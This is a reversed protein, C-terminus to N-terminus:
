PGQHYKFINAKVEESMKQYDFNPLKEERKLWKRVYPAGDYQRSQKIPDFVRYTKDNGVGAQYCWNGYNSAPNYDILYHEFFAAGYRFDLGMNKVFYSALLQRVRNSIWGTQTLEKVGADIIDLRTKAQFFIELDEKKKKFDFANEFLGQKLFLKNKSQLMVLHFFDRWLLEFYIWYSSKSTGTKNEYQKIKEYVMRASIAGVSLYASLQTSIDTGDVLSRTDYYDHLHKSLYYDVRKAAEDEGGFFLIRKKGKTLTENQIEFTRINEKQYSAQALAKPIQLNQAKKRFHSFSKSYDFSFAEVMTQNFFSQTKYKQLLREFALEQTGVEKEYFIEIEFSQALLALSKSINSVLYLSINLKDLNICLNELSQRIFEKRYEGCQKFGLYTGDLIELPYICVINKYLKQAQLLPANDISRLNNRLVVVALKNM